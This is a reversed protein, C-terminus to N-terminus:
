KQFPNQGPSQTQTKEEKIVSNETLKELKKTKKKIDIHSIHEEAPDLLELLAQLQSIRNVISTTLLLRDGFYSPFTPM